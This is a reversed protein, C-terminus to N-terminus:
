MKLISVLNNASTYPTIRDSLLYSSRSMEILKEDSISIVKLLTDALEHFDLSKFRFGNLGPVLFSSTSGVVDSAILPLGAAAFEHLVVGWPEHRSPLIFCGANEVEQVLIEPQMFDKIVIGECQSLQDKISGNGILHLEWDRRQSKIHNWANLLIDLGKVKEFRGVFLFRHPYKNKKNMSYRCYAEQFLSIDASYLDFILDAKRFGIRRAFEYQPAGPLWAHSFYRYLFDTYGLLSAVHQKFTGKWQSDLCCVVFAGNMRIRRVVKIYLPDQWASVVVLNPSLDEIFKLLTEYNFLSKPYFKVDNINEIKYPTLKGKDWHVIHMEYGLSRLERITALTYGMVEIYLYLIRM